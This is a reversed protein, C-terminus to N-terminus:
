DRPPCDEGLPSGDYAKDGCENIEHWIYGRGDETIAVVRDIGFELNRQGAFVTARGADIEAGIAEADFCDFWFPATRPVAGAYREARMTEPRAATTFCARFRIPSSNADIATFATVPLQTLGGDARTLTVTEQAPVDEYYHYIQLYYMGAGAIVASPLLLIALLKGTM